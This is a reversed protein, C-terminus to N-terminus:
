AKACLGDDCTYGSPCESCSTGVKYMAQGIFNGTVAYNCVVLNEYWSDGKYYVMGCGLEESDAWVVQTYHGTGYDFVYPNINNSNFGPDTVEDYWAQASKTMGGQIVSEAQEASNAGWYANQGVMTGDIKDRTSDHGFNCQDAWRQAIAELENNWVMKKMNSAQPQPPNIGGTEEGKAVRRRLENHKDLIAQKASASLERYITKAACDASPGDYKCMTHDSNFACYEANSAVGGGSSATTPAPTTTQPADSCAITCEAGPGNQKKNSRFTVVLAKSTSSVPTFKKGSFKYKKKGAKVLMVDGKGLQFSDCTMQLKKCSKLKIYKAQCNTKAGYTAGEQTKFVSSEGSGLKATNKSKKAPCTIDDALGFSLFGILALTVLYGM